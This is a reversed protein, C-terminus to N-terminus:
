IVLNVIQYLDDSMVVFDSVEQVHVKHKNTKKLM